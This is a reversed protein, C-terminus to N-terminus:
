KELERRGIKELEEVKQRLESIRDSGQCVLEKIRSIQQSVFSNASRNKAVSGPGGPGKSRDGARAVAAATPAVDPFLISEHEPYVSLAVGRLKEMIKEPASIVVCRGGNAVVIRGRRTVSIHQPPFPARISHAIKGRGIDTMLITSDSSGTLLYNDGFIYSCLIDHEWDIRCLRHFSETEWVFIEKKTAIKGFDRGTIIEVGAAIINTSITVCTVRYIDEEILVAKRRTWDGVVWAKISQSDVGTEDRTRKKSSCATDVTVMCDKHIAGLSSTTDEPRFINRTTVKYGDVHEFLTLFFNAGARVAFTSTILVAIEKVCGGDQKASYLCEGTAVRWICVVGDFDGTAVLNPGLIALGHVANLNKKFVMKLAGTGSDCVRVNGEQCSSIIHKGDPLVAIRTLSSGPGQLEVADASFLLAM